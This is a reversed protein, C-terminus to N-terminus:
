PGTSPEQYGNAELSPNRYQFWIRQIDPVQDHYIASNFSSAKTISTSPQLLRARMTASRRDQSVRLELGLIDDAYYSYAYSLNELSNFAASRLLRRTLDEVTANSSRQPSQSPMDLRGAVNLFPPLYTNLVRLRGRSAAHTNAAGLMAIKIGRAIAEDGDAQVIMDFIPHDNNIGRTLGELEIRELVRRIGEEGIYVSGNSFRVTTNYFGRAHMLNRIEDENNLRQIRSELERITGKYVEVDRHPVAILVGASEPTFYFLVYGIERASINKWRDAYTSDYM